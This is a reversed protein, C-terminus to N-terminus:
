QISDANDTSTSNQESIEASCRCLLSVIIITIGLASNGYSDLNLTKAVDTLSSVINQSIEAAILSALPIWLASIGLKLLEKAGSLTFPTGAKLENKFYRYAIKSLFMEGVCLILGAVAACWFTGINVTEGTKLFSYLVNRGGLKLSKETSILATISIICGVAGIICCIYIIESLIKGIKSLTQIIRLTKM